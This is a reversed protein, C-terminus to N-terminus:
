GGACVGEGTAAHLEVSWCGCALGCVHADQAEVKAGPRDEIRMRSGCMQCCLVRGDVHLFFRSESDAINV